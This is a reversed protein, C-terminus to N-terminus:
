CPMVPYGRLAMVPHGRLPWSRVSIDIAWPSPRRMAKPDHRRPHKLAIDESIRVLCEGFGDGDGTACDQIPAVVPPPVTAHRLEVPGDHEVTGQGVRIADCSLQRPIRSRDARRVAKRAARPPRPYRVLQDGGLVDDGRCSIQCRSACWRCEAISDEDAGVTRELREATSDELSVVDRQSCKIMAEVEIVFGEGDDHRRHNGDLSHRRTM